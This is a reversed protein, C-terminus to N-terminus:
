YVIHKHGSSIMPVLLEVAALKLKYVGPCLLERLKFPNGSVSLEKKHLQRIYTNITFKQNQINLDVQLSWAWKPSIIAMTRDFITM